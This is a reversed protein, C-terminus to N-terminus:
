WLSLRFRQSQGSVGCSRWTFNGLYEYVGAAKTTWWPAAGFNPLIIATHGVLPVMPNCRDTGSQQVWTGPHTHVDALVQLNSERCLTWLAAYGAAHFTIAGSQYARPDLDDYCIFQTIRRGNGHRKGLLFAGSERRGKGRARLEMLVRKWLLLSVTLTITGNDSVL